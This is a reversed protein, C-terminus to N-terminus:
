QVLDRALMVAHEDLRRCAALGSYREKQCFSRTALVVRPLVLPKALVIPFDPDLSRVVRDGVSAAAHDLNDLVGGVDGLLLEAVGVEFALQGGDALCLGDDFEIEVARYASGIFNEAFARSSV